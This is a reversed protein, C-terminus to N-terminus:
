ASEDFLTEGTVDDLLSEDGIDNRMISVSQGLNKQVWASAQQSAATADDATKWESVSMLTGPDVKNLQYRVFGPQERFVPLLGAKAKEALEAPTSSMVTYVALRVHSM